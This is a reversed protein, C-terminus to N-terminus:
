VMLSLAGLGQVNAEAKADSSSGSSVLILREVVEPHELAFDLAIAGGFSVGIIHCKKANLVELLAGLDQSHSFPGLPRAWKGSGRIDYRIVEYHGALAQFQADWGRRDLLGGGSVLVVAAGEGSTEYYIGTGNVEAIGQRMCSGYANSDFRGTASTLGPE